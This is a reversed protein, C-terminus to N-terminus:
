DGLLDMPDHGGFPAHEASSRSDPNPLRVRDYVVQRVAYRRHAPDFSVPVDPCSDSGMGDPPPDAPDADLVVDLEVHARARHRTTTSAEWRHTRLVEDLGALRVGAALPAAPPFARRGLYLPFAPRRIAGHLARVLTDDGEVAALFVADALYYRQSLPLPKGDATHATQFDREVHGPQDIRVGFRLGVLDEIPDTRRRGEAAALLGLVGSKTPYLQTTRRTFRSTAGWSQMPAALRLVLTSV